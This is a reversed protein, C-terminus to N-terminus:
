STSVQDVAPARVRAEARRHFWWIVVPLLVATGPVVLLLVVAIWRAPGGLKKLTATVDSKRAGQETPLFSLRRVGCVASHGDKNGRALSIVERHRSQTLRMMRKSIPLHSQGARRTAFVM